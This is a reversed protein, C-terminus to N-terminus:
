WVGSSAENVLLGGTVSKQFTGNEIVAPIANLVSATSYTGDKVFIQDPKVSTAGNITRFNPATPTATSDNGGITVNAIPYTKQIWLDGDNDVIFKYNDTDWGTLLEKYYDETPKNEANGKYDLVKKKIVDTASVFGDAGITFKKTYKSGFGTFSLTSRWDMSISGSGGFSIENFFVTSSQESTSMITLALNIEAANSTSSVTFSSGNVSISGGQYSLKDATFTANTVALYKSDNSGGQTFKGNVTFTAGDSVTVVGYNDFSDYAQAKSGSINITGFNEYSNAILISDNDMTITGKNIIEGGSLCTGEGDYTGVTMTSNDLNITLAPAGDIVGAIEGGNGIRKYPINKLDGRVNLVSGSQFTFIGGNETLSVFNRVAETDAAATNTGAYYRVVIDQIDWKTNSSVLHADTAFGGSRGYNEDTFSLAHELYVKSNTISVGGDVFIMYDASVQEDQTGDVYSGTGTITIDHAPGAFSPSTNANPGMILISNGASLKGTTSVTANSGLQINTGATLAANIETTVAYKTTEEAVVITKPWSVTLWGTSEIPSNITIKKNQARLVLEGVGSLSVKKGGITLNDTFFCDKDASPTVTESYNESVIQISTSGVAEAKALAETFSSFRNYGYGGTTEPTYTSDVYLTAQSEKTLWIGKGGLTYIYYGDGVPTGDINLRDKETGNVSISVSNDITGYVVLYTDQPDTLLDSTLVNITGGSISGTDSVEVLSHADVVIVGGKNNKDTEGSATSETIVIGEAYLTAGGTVTIKRYDSGKNLGLLGSFHAEAENTVTLVGRGTGSNSTDSMNMGGAFLRAEAGSVKIEGSNSIDAYTEGNKIELTGSVDVLKSKANELGTATLTIGSNVKLGAESESGGSNTFMGVETIVTDTYNEKRSFTIKGGNAVNGVRFISETVTITGKLSAIGGIFTRSDGEVEWTGVEFTSDTITIVNKEKASLFSDAIVLSGEKITTYTPNDTGRDCTFTGGSVTITSGSVSLSRANTFPTKLQNEATFNLVAGGSVFFVNNIDGDTIKLQSNTGSTTKFCHINLTIKGSVSVAEPAEIRFAEINVTKRTEGTYSIGEGSMSYIGKPTSNINTNSDAYVWITDSNGAATIADSLSNHTKSKTAGTFSNKSIRNVVIKGDREETSYYCTTENDWLSNVILFSM